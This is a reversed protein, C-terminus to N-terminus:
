NSKVFRSAFGFMDPDFKDEDWWMMGFYDANDYDRFEMSLDGDPTIRFVIVASGLDEEDASFARNVNDLKYYTNQQYAEAVESIFMNAEETSHKGLAFGNATLNVPTALSVKSKRFFKNFDGNGSPTLVIDSGEKSFTLSFGDNHTPLEEPDDEMEMFWLELEDIDYVEAFNWKGLLKDPTQLGRIYLLEDDNDGPIIRSNDKGIAIAAVSEGSFSADALKVELTAKNQGPELVAKGLSIDGSGSGTVVVPIEIKESAKFDNGSIVGKVDITAVYSELVVAEEAIFSCILMEKDDPSVVATNRVGAAYGAPVSLSISVQRDESLSINKVTISATTTGRRISFRESSVTYDTGKVANGSFVAPVTIDAEPAKSVEISVEVEGGGAYATYLTQSFQIEPIPDKTCSLALMLVGASLITLFRKM